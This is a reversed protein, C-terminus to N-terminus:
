QCYVDVLSDSPYILAYGNLYDELDRNFKALAEQCREMDAIQQEFERQQRDQEWQTLGSVDPLGDAQQRVENIQAQLEDRLQQVDEPSVENTDTGQLPPLPRLPRLPRLTAPPPITTQRSTARPTERSSRTPRPTTAALPENKGDQWPSWAMLAITVGANLAVLAIAGAILWRVSIV